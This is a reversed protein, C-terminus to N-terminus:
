RNELSGSGFHPLSPANESFALDMKERERSKDAGDIWRSYVTLLMQMSSHGLQRAVWMPNAGAMLCLTAFTHRTQYAERHRLGLAKLTPIWYARRLPREEHYPLGTVPNEFIFGHKKMFTHAKQRKLAALARSTIEVDRVKYTKTEKIELGTKARSVRALQRKWDIDGWQLAIIESPRMGTFFAWEFYNGIQEHYRKMHALVADAEEATLPDPPAKQVKANKLREAPNSEIIGDLYALDLVRRLPILMNNRHKAQWGRSNALGAILSFKITHVPMTGIHELWFNLAEAYKRRTGAQLHSSAALWRTAMDSFTPMAGLDAPAMGLKKLLRSKPFYETYNFAGIEIKRQIEARLRAAYKLNPPTPELNLTERCRRGRWSFEIRIRLGRAEIGAAGTERRGM